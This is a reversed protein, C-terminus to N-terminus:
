QNFDNPDWGDDRKRNIKIYQYMPYPWAMVCLIVGVWLVILNGEEWGFYLGMGGIIAGILLYIFFAYFLIEYM